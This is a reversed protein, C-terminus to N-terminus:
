YFFLLLLLKRHPPEKKQNNWIVLIKQLSPVVSLKQILTFLSEIRDYTLIVATFGQSKPAILPLFLPNQSQTAKESNWEKITKALHPFVRDNLINLLTLTIKKISSFYKTYLWAVQKKLEFIKEKSIGKLVTILSHLDAERIRISALNWDIVDEFPLIYNDAMIVPICKFALIELFEPQSLRLSRGILCFKGQELIQPYSHERGNIFNCRTDKMLVDGIEDFKNNKSTSQCSQLVLVDNNDFAMERLLRIHHPHLNLQTAILLYKKSKENVQINLNKLTPSWIPLSIDFGSRYTWSDFGAGAILAKDTNVDFVTNFEPYQGPLMNFLLHNEGNEWYNLTALAKSVLITDFLNQNLTDISPVFICADNANPTYYRSDIITKLIEYYEQTLTYAQKGGTDTYIKLPYVYISIKDPDKQGCRYINFCDWFTCNSNRRRALEADKELVNSTIQSLDLSVKQNQNKVNTESMYDFILVFGGVFCITFIACKIGKFFNSNHNSKPSLKRVVVTM